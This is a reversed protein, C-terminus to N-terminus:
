KKNLPVILLRMYSLYVARGVAPKAVRWSPVHPLLRIAGRMRCSPVVHKLTSDDQGNWSELWSEETTSGM